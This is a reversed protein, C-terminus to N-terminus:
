DIIEPKPKFIYYNYILYTYPVIVGTVLLNIFFIDLNTNLLITTITKVVFLNFSLLLLYKILQIKSMKTQFTFLNTAIYNFIVSLLWAIIVSNLSPLKYIKVLIFLFINNVGVSALGIFIYKLFKSKHLHFLKIAKKQM